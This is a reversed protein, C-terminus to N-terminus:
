VAAVRHLGGASGGLSASASAQPLEEGGARCRVRGEADAGQPAGGRRATILVLFEDGGWRFV